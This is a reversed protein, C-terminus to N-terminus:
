RDEAARLIGLDALQKDLGTDDIKAVDREIKRLEKVASNNEIIITQHTDAVAQVYGQKYKAQGYSYFAFGGLGLLALAAATIILKSPM